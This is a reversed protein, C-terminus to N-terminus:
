RTRYGDLERLEGLQQAIRENHSAIAAQHKAIWKQHEDILLIAIERRKRKELKAKHSTKGAYTGAGPLPIVTSSTSHASDAM